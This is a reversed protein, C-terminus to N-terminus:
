TNKKFIINSLEAKKEEFIDELIANLSIKISINKGEILVGDSFGLKKEKIEVFSIDVESLVKKLFSKKGEPVFFVTEKILFSKVKRLEKKLIEKKEEESLNKIDNKVKLFANDLIMKRESLLKMKLSHEKEEKKRLLFRKKKKEIEKEKKEKLEKLEREFDKDIKEIRLSTEKELSGIKDEKSSKIQQILDQLAM